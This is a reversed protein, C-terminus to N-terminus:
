GGVQHPKVWGLVFALVLFLLLLMQLGVRWILAKLARRETGPDRVVFYGGALLAVVIAVLFAGIFWNVLM